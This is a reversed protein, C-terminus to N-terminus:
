EPFRWEKLPTGDSDVARIWEITVDGAAASPDFRLPALPSRIDLPATYEHWGGDHSVDFLVSAEYATRSEAAKAALGTALCAASAGGLFARRKLQRGTLAIGTKQWERTFAVTRSGMTKIVIPLWCTIM